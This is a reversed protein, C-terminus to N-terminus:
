AQASTTDAKPLEVTADPPLYNQNAFWSITSSAFLVTFFLWDFQSMSMGFFRALWGFPVGVISLLSIVVLLSQIVSMLALIYIRGPMCYM